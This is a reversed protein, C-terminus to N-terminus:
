GHWAYYRGQVDLSRLNADDIWPYKEKAAAMADIRFTGDSYDYNEYYIKWLVDDRVSLIFESLREIEQAPLNCCRALKVPLPIAYEEGWKLSQMLALNRLASNELPNEM